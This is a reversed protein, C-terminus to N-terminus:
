LSESSGEPTTCPLGDTMPFPTTTSGQASSDSISFIVPCPTSIVGSIRIRASLAERIRGTCRSRSPARSAAAPAALIPVVPRPM